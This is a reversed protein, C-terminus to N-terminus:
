ILKRQRNEPTIRYIRPEHTILFVREQEGRIYEMRNVDTYNNLKSGEYRGAFIARYGEAILLDHIKRDIFSWDSEKMQPFLLKKGNNKSPKARKEKTKM